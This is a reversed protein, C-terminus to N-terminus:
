QAPHTLPRTNIVGLKSMEIFMNKNRHAKLALKVLAEGFSKRNRHTKVLLSELDIIDEDSLEIDFRIYNTKHGTKM